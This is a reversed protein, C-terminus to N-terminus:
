WSIDVHYTDVRNDADGWDSGFLVKTGDPSVNVQTVGRNDHSVHTQVYREVVGSVHDDLKLAFLEKYGEESTNVYCWGLRRYNRCSIHGGGHNSPILDLAAHTRLNYSRIATGGYIMQVYVPDGNIDIGMDGHGAYDDLKVENSLNMDYLWIKEEASVVIYHATPDVSIWDFYTEDEGNWVGRPVVKTWNLDSEGIQYLLGFVSENDEKKAAFVVFSDHHDLNGENNGTTINRYGFGSMDILPTEAVADSRDANIVVRKFRQSSDLVYMVNPDSKSWRIDASGHAPSGVKAYAQSGDLGATVPLEEFTVADYLRYQMRIITGDSNWASGQKPYPHTNVTQSSRDTIRTVNTDFLPEQYTSLYAPQVLDVEPVASFGGDAPYRYGTMYAECQQVRPNPDYHGGSASDCPYPTGADVFHQMMSEYTATDPVRGEAFIHLTDDESDAEPFVAAKDTGEFTYRALADLPKYIGEKVVPVPTGYMITYHDSNQKLIMFSKHAVAMHRYMDLYIRPDTDHDDEYWQTVFNTDAPLYKEAKWQFDVWPTAGFVFRGNSGMGEKVFFRYALSPLTGAGSSHGILGTRTDDNIGKEECMQWGKVFADFFNDAIHTDNFGDSYSAAVVVYGQYVMHHLLHEYRHHDLGGGAVFYLTPKVVGEEQYYVSVDMESGASSTVNGDMRVIRLTAKGSTATEIDDLRMDGRMYFGYIEEVTEDPFVQQLDAQIDRVVDIWRDDKMYSGLGTRVYDKGNQAVYGEDTDVPAYELYLPDHGSTKVKIFFRFDEHTRMSWSVFFGQTINLNTFSFGNEIGNKTSLEIVRSNRDTDEVNKVEAGAPDSDYIAWGGTDGDEANEHVSKGSAEARITVIIEDSASHGKEDTITLMLVHQGEIRSSYSLQQTRALSTGNEQWHYQVINGDTAIGSGNLDMSEGVTGNLDEGAYAYLFSKGNGLQRCLGQTNNQECSIDKVWDAVVTAGQSNLHTTDRTGDLKWAGFLGYRQVPTYRSYEALSKSHLDIVAVGAERGVDWIYDPYPARTDNLTSKPNIPTVLVPILSLLRAEDIYFMIHQKFDEESIGSYKDNSGFQILLYGGSDIEQSEILKRTSNWDYPGKHSAIYPDIPAERRYSNVNEEVGGAIAARRGRNFLNEPHTMYLSLRSGWGTRHISGNIDRDGDFDYRVTSDGIIFIKRKESISCRYTGQVLREPFPCIPLFLDESIEEEASICSEALANGQQAYHDEGCVSPLWIGPADVKKADICEATGQKFHQSDPCPNQSEAFLNIHFLLFFLLGLPTTHIRM